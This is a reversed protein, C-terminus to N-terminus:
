AIDMGKAWSLLRRLGWAPLLLLAHAVVSIGFVVWMALFTATLPEALNALLWPGAGALVAAGVLLAAFLSLPLWARRDSASPMMTSSVTLTLYFWLWFDTASYAQRFAAILAGPAGGGLQEWASLLGLQVLGAYAVFAGGALLPAAGILTERLPDTRATEVFGLQLRGDGLPRPLISFRGTRVGLLRAALYHSGEHLLIGPLFLISFLTVAVDARRTIVLLLAQIERHLGRQLLLLLGLTLLMVWLYTLDMIPGTDNVGGRRAASLLRGM